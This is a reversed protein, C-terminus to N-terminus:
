HVVLNGGNLTTESTQAGTWQSSFVLTNGNWLSIGISDSAGPEGKDTLTVQLALNGGLAIPSLPNTVDILNAKSRFDALGFCTASPPGACAGGGGTKLAIGLSDIATSKIQYTRGGASFQINAHGQLNKMNKGNYKVNFGFNMRSGPDAAYAGRSLGILIKGGGTIFSGDPQSVEVLGTTSGTYYGNVFVDINHAGVALSKMCSATGTTLAGDILGVTLPGCLTTAGEKFTVTANRIDGPEADAFSPVLSSDRVTARLLVNANSGGAPTFALMDGTYTADADEKTVVITFSTSGTGGTDTVTVSVPYSGPAATVTGAVKWTRSGPLTSADTTSVVALALGSPLGTAAANLTAGLSDDDTASVTVDPVLSDSYQVSQSGGSLSNTVVPLAHITFNSHNVDFFINGVAEVKIRAKITGVNPLTVSQSGDNPTNAALVYPYTYGGDTSLSIMVNPALLPKATNNVDWTVTQSSSGQYTASAGQSTIRLPGATNDILLTTDASDVGGGGDRATFRLHLALPVANTGAFGVYDITPLFESFCETAGPPVPQAVPGNTCAGTLANTNDDLIQQLDPFVRTTSTTLHNEGPSDFLGSDADSILGSKSFMAFLPGNTKTNSLLSTGAAAGRDNQEWSFLLTDDDVDAAGGTLAFPTRLPITFQAPATVVPSSNGTATIFGGKNDVAGGKDTENVFGGAGASFDQVALMVPVNTAALTGTFTVQFGTNNFTGGAFGLVTATGGAPLLPTLAALVGAATFNVGNTIPASVNGNYNLRFSDTAGGHNTEQVSAACGACSLNVLQINPVDIGASAGSYTVTFGTSAAGSVTATGAFGSIANIATQINANSFPSGSGGILASDNGGIRIRFSSFFTATGGGSSALGAAAATYQFSRASPIATITFTGNYGAVGVGGITIVDGVSRNHAASTLITVTTGAETAGPTNLTVTGGGSTALGSSPNAYQFSRSSPVATVTWIGNYGAVGVGAITVADGVQLTHGNGTAITVINGTEEAGGRSTPNPAANIALSLPRVTATPAYGPGFTVVQVENGGGFHSLSATQVENIAAQNSTTYTTIEQQSRESFYPDSHRQLDDTLCIGAYAMISSGSGPEVSTGANRNGGSCNLQNGNFPHNGSFQHGMEHAVYDVAYFDGVPTPIGTCGGAKNSRGIVGLNAVGGGPEGLALHGIDYNSAGIIQGIVFRARTTSSCGTVQSQTFCPASGCPGNPGTALDWTDLNLLDNNAVLVMRISLDEEYVQTVRNILTVKAPTVNAAGGFFNAYGPDTILALRYTRLQSGTAILPSQTQRSVVDYGTDAQTAADRAEIQRTGSSGNASAPFALEFSGDGDSQATLTRSASDPDAITVTIQSNGTFGVGSLRVTNDSRYYSHDASISAEDSEHEELVGHQNELDKGFYSIYVSQDLYNYPDIYWAGAQGRVSAHFGLPTLDFRITASKDDVGRGSYTKIDPHKQALGPEMVPSEFVTFRQFEGSPAPLSLLFSAERANATFERPAATLARELADRNLSFSRFRRAQLTGETQAVAPTKFLEQWFEATPDNKQPEGVPPAAKQRADRSQMLATATFSMAILISIVVVFLLRASTVAHLRSGFKRM